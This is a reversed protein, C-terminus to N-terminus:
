KIIGLDLDNRSEFYKVVSFKSTDSLSLFWDKPLKNNKASNCRHCMVMVNSLIHRGGKSLPVIHDLTKDNFEMKDDCVCCNKSPIFLDKLSESNISGDDTGYVRNARKENYQNRVAIAKRCMKCHSVYGRTSKQFHDLPKVVGCHNCFKVGRKRLANNINALTREACCRSAIRGSKEVPFDRRKIKRGCDKCEIIESDKKMKSVKSKARSKIYSPSRYGSYRDSHCQKCTSRVLGKHQLFSSQDKHKNCSRCLFHVQGDVEKQRDLYKQANNWGTTKCCTRRPKGTSKFKPWESMTMTKSCEPCTVESALFKSLKEQYDSPM